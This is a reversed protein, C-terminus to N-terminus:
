AWSMRLQEVPQGAFKDGNAPTDFRHVPQHHERGGIALDGRRGIGVASRVLRLSLVRQVLPVRSHRELPHLRFQDAVRGQPNGIPQVTGLETRGIRDADALVPQHGGLRHPTSPSPTDVQSLSPLLKRCEKRSEIKGAHRGVTDLTGLRGHRGLCQKQHVIGRDVLQCCRKSFSNRTFHPRLDISLNLPSVQNGETAPRSLRLQLNATIRQSLEQLM